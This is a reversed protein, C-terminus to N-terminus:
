GGTSYFGGTKFIVPNSSWVREMSTQCCVPVTDDDYSRAVEQVGGCVKCKYEYTPMVEEGGM